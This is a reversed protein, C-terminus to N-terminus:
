EKTVEKWLNRAIDDFIPRIAPNIYDRGQVYGGTGTGHGYQIIIAIPVGDVVNSNLFELSYGDKTQVIQYYWSEATRGSDRPTAQSLAEVGLEGYERLDDMSLKKARKLFNYTKKFDGKHSFTIM